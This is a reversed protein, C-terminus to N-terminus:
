QKDAVVMRKSDMIKGDAMVSYIYIGASLKESTITISKSNSDLPFATLQKGSLDYVILSANKIQQPLVYNVVTENSFPNPINQDLAFGDAASNLLNIGKANGTKNESAYLRAELNEIQKQQEQIGSILVPILGVYNVSKYEPISTTTKGDMDKHTFAANTTVLEPFIEELEQAILGLQKEKPLNMNKFEEDTKFNYTSPKLLKIKELGNVMPKIDRKLKKDSTYTTTNVLLFGTVKANGQCWTGWDNASNQSTYSQFYGGINGNSSSGSASSYIGFNQSSPGNGSCLVGVNFDTGGQSSNGNFRGGYNDKGDAAEGQVGFLAGMGPAGAAARSYNSILIETGNGFNFTPWNSWIDSRQGYYTTNNAPDIVKRNVEFLDDFGPTTANNNVATQGDRYIFGSPTTSGAWQANAIGSLALLGALILQTKM